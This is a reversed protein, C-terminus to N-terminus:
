EVVFTIYTFILLFTVKGLFFSCKEGSDRPNGLVICHWDYVSKFVCELNEPGLESEKASLLAIVIYCL